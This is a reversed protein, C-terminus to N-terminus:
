VNSSPVNLLEVRSIMRTRGIEMLALIEQTPVSSDCILM